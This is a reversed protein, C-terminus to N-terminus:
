QLEEDIKRRSAIERVILLRARELDILSQPLTVGKLLPMNKKLRRKIYHDTLLETKRKDSDRRRQDIEEKSLAPKLKQERLMLKAQKRVEVWQKVHADHKMPKFGSICMIRALRKFQATKTACGLAKYKIYGDRSACGTRCGCHKKLRGDAGRPADGRRLVRGCRPCKWSKRATATYACLFDRVHADHLPHKRFWAERTRLYSREENM